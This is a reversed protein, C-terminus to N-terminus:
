SQPAQQLEITHGDPDTVFVQPARGTVTRELLPLGKERLFERWAELDDVEYAAHRALNSPKTDAGPKMADSVFLHIEVRGTEDALWAGAFAMDPRPLVKLGMVETYFHLSADLNSIPYADHIPAIMKPRATKPDIKAQVAEAM